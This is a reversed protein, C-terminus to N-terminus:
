ILVFVNGPDNGLPHFSVAFFGQADELQDFLEPAIWKTAGALGFRELMLEGATPGPADIQFVPKDVLDLFIFNANQSTPVVVLFGSSILKCLSTKM